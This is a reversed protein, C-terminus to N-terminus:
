HPVGHVAATMEYGRAISGLVRSTAAWLREQGEITLAEKLIDDALDAPIRVVGDSDAVVIDGPAVRVGDFHVPGGSVRLRTRDRTQAPHSFAHRVPLGYERIEDTDRIGGDTVIGALGRGLATAVTVGGLVTLPKAQTGIVLVSGQPATDLIHWLGTTAAAAGAPREQGSTTFRSATLDSTTIGVTVAPGTFSGHGHAGALMIGDIGRKELVDVVSATGVSPWSTTTSTEVSM